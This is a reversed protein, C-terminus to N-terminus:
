DDRPDGEPTQYTSPQQIPLDDAPEVGLTQLTIHGDVVRLSLEDGADVQRISTVVAGDTQAVAYGRSLTSLPSLGRVRALHHGVEDHARDLRHRITRRLRDTHESVETQRDTVLTHPAALVPRSRINALGHSEREVLGLVALAA